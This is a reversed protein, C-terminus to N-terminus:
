PATYGQANVRVTGAASLNANLAANATTILETPFVISVPVNQPLTMRWREVAADLIILDVATGTNVAQLGTIHRKLGAGAATALAQATTTTLALSANWGAEPIAYPKVIQAGVLTATLDAVDDTAVAAYNSSRARGAMRIPNGAQPGDHPVMGQMPMFQPTAPRSELMTVTRVTGGVFATSIRARIFRLRCPVLFIRATNAAIAFAAAVPTTILTTIETVPVPVPTATIDNTGEFIIQGASIGASAIVQVALQAADSVDTYGSVIGDLINTNIAALSAPSSFTRRTEQTM